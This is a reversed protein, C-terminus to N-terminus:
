SRRSPITLSPILADQRKVRITALVLSAVPLDGDATSSWRITEVYVVYSRRGSTRRLCTYGTVPGSGGIYSTPATQQSIRRPHGSVRRSSRRPHHRKQEGINLPRGTPPFRVRSRHPRCQGRVVLHQAVRDFGVNILGSTAVM